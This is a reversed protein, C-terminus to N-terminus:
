GDYCADYGDLVVGGSGQCTVGVWFSPREGFWL